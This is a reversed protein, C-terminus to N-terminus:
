KVFLPQSRVGHKKGTHVKGNPMIHYLGNYVKGRKTYLKLVPKGSGVHSIKDVEANLEDMRQQATKQKPKWNNPQEVVVNQPEMKEYKADVETIYNARPNPYEGSLM